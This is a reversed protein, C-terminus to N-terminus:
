PSGAPAVMLDMTAHATGLAIELRWCGPSPLDIGSPYNGGPSFAPPFDFRIVPSSANLPHAAITLHAAQEGHSVWLVKTRDNPGHAFLLDPPPYWFYAVIGADAPTAPAWPNDALGLAADPGPGAFVQTSGCGGAVLPLSGVAQASPVAAASASPPSEASATAAESASGSPPPVGVAKEQSLSWGAIFAGGAVVSALLVAAVRLSLWTRHRQPPLSGMIRSGFAASPEPWTSTPRLAGRLREEVDM